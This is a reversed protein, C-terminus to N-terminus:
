KEYTNNAFPTKEPSLNLEGLIRNLEAISKEEILETNITLEEKDTKLIYDGAFKKIWTIQNLDLKKGYWSNKRITGDQITLYQNKYEYIHQGFYLISMFVYGFDM